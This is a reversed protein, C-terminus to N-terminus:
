YDFRMTPNDPSVISRVITLDDRPDLDPDHERRFAQIPMIVDLL